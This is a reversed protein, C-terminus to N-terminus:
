IKLFDFSSEEFAFGLAQMRGGEAMQLFEERSIIPNEKVKGLIVYVGTPAVEM